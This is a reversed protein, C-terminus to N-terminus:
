SSRVVLTPSPGLCIKRRGTPTVTAGWARLQGVSAAVLCEATGQVIPSLETGWDISAPQIGLMDADFLNGLVNM